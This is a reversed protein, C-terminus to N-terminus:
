TFMHTWFYLLIIRGRHLDLDNAVHVETASAHLFNPGLLLPERSTSRFAELM